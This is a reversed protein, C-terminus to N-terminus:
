GARKKFMEIKEVIMQPIKKPAFPKRIVGCVDQKLLYTLEKNEETATLFIVPATIGMARINKLVEVGSIEGLYYDLLIVEPQSNVNLFKLEKTVDVINTIQTPSNKFAIKLLYHIDASDDIIAISKIKSLQNHEETKKALKVMSGLVEVLKKPLEPGKKVIRVLNSQANLNNISDSSSIFLFPTNKNPSEILNLIKTLNVGDILNVHVHTIIADFKEFILRGLASYGDAALSCTVNFPSLSQLVIKNVFKSDELILVKLSDDKVKGDNSEVYNPNNFIVKLSEQPKDMEAIVAEPNARAKAVMALMVDVQELLDNVVEESSVSGSALIGLIDEMKHVVPSFEGLGYGGATGKISHLMQLIKRQNESARNSNLGLILAEITGLTDTMDDLYGLLGNILEDEKM